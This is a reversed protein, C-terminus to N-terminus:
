YSVANEKRSYYYAHDSLIENSAVETANVEKVMADLVAKEIIFSAPLILVEHISSPLIYLDSDMELSISKLLNEYIMSAAGNTKLDNTLVFLPISKGENQYPSYGLLSILVNDLTNMDKPLLKPTNENAIEYLEEKTKEWVKLHSEHILISAMSDDRDVDVLFAFVIALDLYPIFPVDKLLEKNRDKNILRFIIHEKAREFDTFSETDFNKKLRNENYEDLIRTVVEDYSYSGSNVDRYYENIYITPSINRNPESIILGDLLTDNTKIIKKMSFTTGKPFWGRLSDIINAKFNEYTM